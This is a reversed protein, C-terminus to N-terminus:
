YSGSGVDKKNQGDDHARGPRKPRWRGGDDRLDDNVAEINGGMEKPTATRWLKKGQTCLTAVEREIRCFELRIECQRNITM